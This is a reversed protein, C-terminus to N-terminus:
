ALLVSQSSKSISCQFLHKANLLIAGCPYLLLDSGREEASGDMTVEQLLM